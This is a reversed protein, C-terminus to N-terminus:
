DEKEILDDFGGMNNLMEFVGPGSYDLTHKVKRAALNPLKVSIIEPGCMEALAMFCEHDNFMPKVHQRPFDKFTFHSVDRISPIENAENIMADMKNNMISIVLSYINEVEKLDAGACYDLHCFGDGVIGARIRYGFIVPYVGVEIGNRVKRFILNEDDPAEIFKSVM